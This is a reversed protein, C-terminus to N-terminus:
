FSLWKDKREKDSIFGLSEIEEFSDFHHQDNVIIGGSKRHTYVNGGSHLSKIGDFTTVDAITVVPSIVTCEKNKLDEIAKKYDIETVKSFTRENLHLPYLNISNPIGNISFINNITIDEDTLELLAIGDCWKGELKETVIENLSKKEAM